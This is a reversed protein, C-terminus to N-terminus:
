HRPLRWWPRRQTEEQAQTLSWNYHYLEVERRLREIEAQAMEYDAPDVPSDLAERLKVNEREAKALKWRVDALQELADRYDHELREIEAELDGLVARALSVREARTEALHSDEYQNDNTRSARGNPRQLATSDM